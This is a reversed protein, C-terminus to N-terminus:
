YYNFNMMMSRGTPVQCDRKGRKRKRGIEQIPLATGMIMM